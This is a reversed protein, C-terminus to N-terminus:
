LVNELIDIEVRPNNKDVFFEHRFGSVYKRSDNPLVGAEVLGDQVYKQAYAVNDCDKRLDVTYWRYSLTVPLNQAKWTRLQIRAEMAVRETEERKIKAAIFKNGREAQIYTNLDTLEGPIVLRM